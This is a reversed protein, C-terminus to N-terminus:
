DEGKLSSGCAGFDHQIAPGDDGASIYDLDSDKIASAIQM